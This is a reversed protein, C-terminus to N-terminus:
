SDRSAQKLERLEEIRIAAPGRLPFHMVYVRARGINQQWGFDCNRTGRFTNYTVKGIFCAVKPRYTLITQIAREVGPQEEGKKLGTVDPTPRSVLNIFGLRYRPLLRRDYVERLGRDTRLVSEEEHLLGARNLLYWLTKNNSFPVGRVDSGPHPNIGVFLIRLHKGVKYEIM